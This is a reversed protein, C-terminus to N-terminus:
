EGLIDVLGLDFLKEARENTCDWEEGFETQRNDRELDIFIKKARVTVIQHAIDDIDPPAPLLLEGWSDEPPKYKFRKVGKQIDEIPLNEMDMPLIWGNVGNEVGIEHVVPFDTVIVPTGACLAEVISYCYGETDSLQVLYDADAIFDLIDFRTKRFAVSPNDFRKDSDTYIDWVFPIQAKDLENALTIMREYGKEATLRTASILHLVKRPKEPTYPNYSVVSEEGLYARYSDRVIKSVAIRKKIKPNRDPFVGITAYDGHLVQYYEDAEINNIIDLSFCLFARKCRITQGDRYRQVRVLKSLRALQGPDATRYYVTIDYKKGYKKGLQYFFSEIGGISNLQKFYFINTNM